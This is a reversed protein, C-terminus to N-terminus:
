TVVQDGSGSLSISKPNYSSGPILLGKPIHYFGNFGYFHIGETQLDIAITEANPQHLWQLVSLAVSM